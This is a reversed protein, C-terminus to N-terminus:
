IYEVLFVDPQTAKYKWLLSTIIGGFPTAKIKM